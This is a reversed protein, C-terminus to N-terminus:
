WFAPTICDAFPPVEFFSTNSSSKQLIEASREAVGNDGQQLALTSPFESEDRVRHGSRWIRTDVLPGFLQRALENSLYKPPQPDLMVQGFGFLLFLLSMVCWATLLTVSFAVFFGETPTASSSLCVQFGLATSLAVIVNNTTFAWLPTRARLVNGVLPERGASVDTQSRRRPM